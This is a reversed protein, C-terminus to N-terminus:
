KLLAVAAAAVAGLVGIVAVWLALRDRKGEKGVEHVADLEKRLQEVIREVNSLRSLVSEKSNGTMVIHDIKEVDARLQVVNAKTVAVDEAMTGVRISLDQLLRLTTEFGERVPRARFEDNM